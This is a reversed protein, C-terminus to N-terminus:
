SGSFMKQIFDNFTYNKNGRWHERAIVNRMKLCAELGEIGEDYFHIPLSEIQEISRKAEDEIYRLALIQKQSQDLAEDEVLADLSSDENPKNPSGSDFYENPKPIIGPVAKFLKNVVQIHSLFLVNRNLYKDFFQIAKIARDFSNVDLYMRDNTPMFFSGIVIPHFRSPIDNYSKEFKLKKAEARYLWVWRKNNPDYDICKLKSFIKELENKKLLDYHIRAFQCPESTMTTLLTKQGTKEHFGKVDSKSSGKKRNRSFLRKLKKSM